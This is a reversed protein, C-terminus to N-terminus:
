KKIRTLTNTALQAPKNIVYYNRMQETAHAGKLTAKGTTQAETSLGTKRLDRLQYDHALPAKNSAVLVANVANRAELWYASM